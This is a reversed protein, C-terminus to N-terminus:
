NALPEKGQTINLWKSEKDVVNQALNTKNCGAQTFRLGTESRKHVIFPPMTLLCDTTRAQDHNTQARM